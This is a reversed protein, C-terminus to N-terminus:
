SHVMNVIVENSGPAGTDTDDAGTTVAATLGVSFLVGRQCTISFGLSGAPIMLTMKPVTTGVTVDASAANYLKLYRVSTATNTAIVNFLLTPYESVSFKTEDADLKKFPKGYDSMTPMLAM